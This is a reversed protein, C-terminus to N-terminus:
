GSRTSRLYWRPLILGACQRTWRSIGTQPLHRTCAPLEAPQSCDSCIATMTGIPDCIGRATAVEGVHIWPPFLAFCLSFSQWQARFCWFCPCVRAPSLHPHSPHPQGQLPDVAEGGVCQYHKWDIVLVDVSINHARYQHVVDVIETQSAYRQKSAWFGLAWTPLVPPLGIAAYYATLIPPFPTAAATAPHTMVLFDLQKSMIASFVTCNDRSLDIGGWAASNFLVGYRKSSVAFPITIMTNHQNTRFDINSGKNNLTGQSREGLGWVKEDASSTVTLNWGYFHPVQTTEIHLDTTAFLVVNDSRRTVTVGSGHVVAEINGNLVPDTHVSGWAASVRADRRGRPLVGSPINTVPELAYTIRIRISDNGFAEVFINPPTSPLPPLPPLPPSPPASPPPPRAFFGATRDTSPIPTGGALLWCHGTQPERIWTTCDHLSICLTCCENSDTTNLFKPKRGALLTGGKQDTGNRVSPCAARPSAISFPVEHPAVLAVLDAAASPLVLCTWFLAMTRPRTRAAAAVAAVVAATVAVPHGEINPPQDRRSLGRRSVRVPM